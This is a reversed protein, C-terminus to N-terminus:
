QTVTLTYPETLYQPVTSTNAKTESVSWPEVRLTYAGATEVTYNLTVTSGRTTSYASEVEAGAPNYLRMSGAADSALIALEVDVEGVALDVSYWDFWSEDPIGTGNEWGAFFYASVPEDLEIPKAASRLDNPEYEDVVPYFAAKFTYSTPDEWSWNTVPVRFTAGPEANFFFTLSGGRSTNYTSHFETNDAAAWAEVSMAGTTGVDTMSVIVYGGDGDAPITFEYFDIDDDAQLCAVYNRGLSYATATERTDNPSTEDAGCPDGEGGPAGGAGAGGEGESPAGGQADAGGAGEGAAGAAAESGSSGGKGPDPEGAAGGGGSRGATSGGAGPNGATEDGDDDDDDNSTTVTCAAVTAATM